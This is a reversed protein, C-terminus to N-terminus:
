FYYNRRFSKCVNAWKKKSTKNKKKTEKNECKNQRFSIKTHPLSFLVSAWYKEETAALKSSKSSFNRKIM